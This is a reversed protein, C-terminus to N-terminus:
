SIEGAARSEPAHKKKSSAGRAFLSYLFLKAFLEPNLSLAPPAGGPPSPTRTATSRRGPARNAPRQAPLPIATPRYRAM